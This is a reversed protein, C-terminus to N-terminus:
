GLTLLDEGDLELKGSDPRELLAICRALSSKGAGSEGVLALTKGHFLTLNVDEFASITFKTRSLARRQVYQKSLGTVRLVPEVRNTNEPKMTSRQENARGHM